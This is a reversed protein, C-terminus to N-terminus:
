LKGVEINSMFPAHEPLFTIQGGSITRLSVSRVDKEFFVGELTSIFLHITPSNNKM